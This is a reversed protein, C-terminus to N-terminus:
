SAAFYAAGRSSMPASTTAINCSRASLPNRISALSGVGHGRRRGIHRLHCALRHVAEGHQFRASRDGLCETNREGHQGFQRMAARQLTRIAGIRQLEIAGVGFEAGVFPLLHQAFEGLDAHQLDVEGTTLRSRTLINCLQHLVGGIDPEIGVQDGRRDQQRLVLQACQGIGAQAMNLNAELAVLGCHRIADGAHLIRVGFFNFRRMPRSFEIQREGDVRHHVPLIQVLKGVDNLHRDIEIGIPEFNGVHLIVTPRQLVARGQHRRQLLDLLGTTDDLLGLDPQFANEGDVVHHRVVIRQARLFAHAAPAPLEEVNRRGALNQRAMRRFGDSAEIEFGHAAIM